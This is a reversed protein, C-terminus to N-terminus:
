RTTCDVIYTDHDSLRHGNAVAVVRRADTVQWGVPVAIHDISLLGLKTHPLSATPVQLRLKDRLGLIATRGDNSGVYERGVLANNWDGGWVVQYNPATLGVRLRQVASRTIAALNGGRDETAMFRPSVALTPHLQV